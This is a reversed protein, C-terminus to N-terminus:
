LNDGQHAIVSHQEQRYQVPTIGYHQKFLKGFYNPDSFGSLQAVTQIQLRTSRLLHTAVKMRQSTIHAALTEGTERHFLTSLYGPSVQMMAALSRLSLEGSLNGDIYTLTKQVVASHQSGAHARVLRCYSRIMDGILNNAKELTPSLEIQRAFQGSMRDLYLPHVGGNQAAKRLLTNCIICYNKMNRLPDALRHQYNLQSVSSMMVEARHTLGKAVIEMLENEYAYREELQKMQQLIDEQEIPADPPRTNLLGATQEYNVDVIDFAEPSGWLIEGFGTVVAIIPAPDNFVPLSAYFEAQQSLRQMDIGLRETQELLMEQTPDITLYPGIVVSEPEEVGPLHFYIYNCMFQDLVKYITRQRSWQQSIRYATDYDGSLGLVERLGSDLVTLSDKPHLQHVGLRMRRFVTMMFDLERQYVMAM